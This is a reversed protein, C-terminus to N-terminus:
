AMPAILTQGAEVAGTDLKNLERIRSVVSGVPSDPAVRAALHQLSEGSQVQVVALRTPVPASQAMVGSAWGSLVLALAVLMLGLLRPPGYLGATRTVGVQRM